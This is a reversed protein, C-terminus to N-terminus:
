QLKYIAIILLQRFCLAVNSQGPQVMDSTPLQGQVNINHLVISADQRDASTAPSTYIACVSWCFEEQSRDQEGGALMMSSVSRMRMHMLPSHPLKNM